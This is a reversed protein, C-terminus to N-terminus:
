FTSPVLLRRGQVPKSAPQLTGSKDRQPHAAAWSWKTLPELYANLSHMEVMTLAILTASSRVGGSSEASMMSRPM